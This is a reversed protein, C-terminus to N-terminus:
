DGVKGLYERWAVVDGVTASLPGAVVPPPRADSRLASVWENLADEVQEWDKPLPPHMPTAGSTSAAAFGAREADLAAQAEAGNAYFEFIVPVRLRNGQGSVAGPRPNWVQMIKCWIPEPWHFSAVKLCENLVTGETAQYKKFGTGACNFIKVDDEGLLKWLTARRQGLISATWDDSPDQGGCLLHHFEDTVVVDDGLLESLDYTANAEGSYRAAAAVASPLAILQYQHRRMWSNRTHGQVLVDLGIIGESDGWKERSEGSSFSIVEERNIRFRWVHRPAAPRRNGSKDAPGKLDLTTVAHQARALGAEDDVFYLSWWGSGPVEVIDRCTVKKDAAVMSNHLKVDVSTLLARMRYANWPGVLGTPMLKGSPAGIAEGEPKFLPKNFDYPM